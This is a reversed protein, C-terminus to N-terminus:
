SMATGLSARRSWRSALAPRIGTTIIDGPHLTMGCSLESIIQPLGFILQSARARQRLEGNVRLSIAINDVQKLADRHVIWPGMPCSGDLSKGKLWQGHARQLDRASIDNIIPYGFVHELARQASIDRGPRGIVVGLEVECDLEATVQPDWAVDRGTAIVATAPKTFFQPVKPIQSLANRTQDGEAVHDVYNRGVCFVNKRPNPIPALLEVDSADVIASEFRTEKSGQKLCGSLSPLEDSSATFDVLDECPTPSQWRPMLGASCAIPLALRLDLVRRENLLMAPRRGTKIAVTVFRM